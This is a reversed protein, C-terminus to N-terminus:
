EVVTGSEIDIEEILAIEAELKEDLIKWALADLAVDIAEYVERQKIQRKLQILIDRAKITEM